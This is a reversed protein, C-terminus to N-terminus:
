GDSCGPLRGDSWRIRGIKRPAHSDRRIHPTGSRPRGTRWTTYKASHMPLSNNEWLTLPPISSIPTEDRGDVAKLYAPSAARAGPLAIRQAAPLRVERKDRKQAVAAPLIGADRPPRSLRPGGMAVIM